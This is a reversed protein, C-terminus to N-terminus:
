SRLRCSGPDEGCGTGGTLAQVVCVRVGADWASVLEAGAHRELFGVPRAPIEGALIQRAGNSSDGPSVPAMTGAAARQDVHMPGLGIAVVAGPGAVVSGV